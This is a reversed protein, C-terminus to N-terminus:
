PAIIALPVIVVLRHALGRRPTRHAGAAMVAVAADAAVLAAGGGCGAAGFAAFAVVRPIVGAPDPLLDQVPLVWIYEFRGTFWVPCLGRKCRSQVVPGCSVVHYILWLNWPTICSRRFCVWVLDDM